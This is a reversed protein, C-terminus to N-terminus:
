VYRNGGGRIQSILENVMQIVVTGDASIGGVEFPILSELLVESMEQCIEEHLSMNDGMNFPLKNFELNFKEKVLKRVRNTNEDGDEEQLLDHLLDENPISENITMNEVFVIDRTINISSSNTTAHGKTLM